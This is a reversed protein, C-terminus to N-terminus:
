CHQLLSVAHDFACVARSFSEAYMWVGQAVAHFLEADFAGGVANRLESGPEVKKLEWIRYIFQQSRAEQSVKRDYSQPV